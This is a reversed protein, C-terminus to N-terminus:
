ILAKTKSYSNRSFAYFILFQFCLEEDKGISFGMNSAFFWNKNTDIASKM